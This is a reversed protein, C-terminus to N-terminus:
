GSAWKWTVKADTQDDHERQEWLQGSEIAEYVRLWSAQIKLGQWCQIFLLAFTRNAVTFISIFKGQIYRLSERSSKNTKMQLKACLDHSTTECKLKSMDNLCRALTVGKKTLNSKFTETLSPKSVSPLSLPHSPGQTSQPLSKARACPAKAVWVVVTVVKSIRLATITRSTLWTLSTLTPM